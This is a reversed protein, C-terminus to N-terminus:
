INEWNRLCFTQMLFKPGLIFAAYSATLVLMPLFEVESNLSTLEKLTTPYSGGGSTFGFIKCFPLLQHWCPCPQTSSSWVKGEEKAWGDMGALVPPNNWIVLWWWIYRTELNWDIKQIGLKVVAIQQVKSREVGITKMRHDHHLPHHHHCHRHHHQNCNDYKHHFLDHQDSNHYYKHWRNPQNWHSTIFVLPWHSLPHTRRERWHWFCRCCAWSNVHM